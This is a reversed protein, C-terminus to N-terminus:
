TAASGNSRLLARKAAPTLGAAQPLQHPGDVRADGDPRHAALAVLADPDAGARALLQRTPEREAAAWLLHDTDLDSEGRRVVHSAAAAVLERAAQSMLRGLDVRQVPRPAQAGGFFRAFLEDFPNSGPEGSIWFGSSM